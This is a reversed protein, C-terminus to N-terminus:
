RQPLSHLISTVTAAERTLTQATEALQVRLGTTDTASLGGTESQEEAADAALVHLLVHGGWDDVAANKGADWVYVADGNADGCIIYSDQGEGPILTVGRLLQRTEGHDQLHDYLGKFVREGTRHDTFWQGDADAGYFQSLDMAARVEDLIPAPDIAVGNVFVGLHTHPGTSYIPPLNEGGSSGLVQGRTVHQGLAVGISDLHVVIVNAARGDPLVGLVDVRWGYPHQGTEGGVKGDILSTIPTGIPTLIDLGDHIQGFATTQGFVYGRGPIDFWRM